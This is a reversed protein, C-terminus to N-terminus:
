ARGGKPGRPARASEAPNGACPAITTSIRLGGRPWIPVSGVSCTGRNVPDARIVRQENKSCSRQPSSAGIPDMVM